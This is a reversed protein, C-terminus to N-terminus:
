NSGIRLTLKPNGETFIIFFLGCIMEFLISFLYYNIGVDTRTIAFFTRLAMSMIYSLLVVTFLNFYQNSVTEIILRRLFLGVIVISFALMNMGEFKHSHIALIIGIWIVPLLIFGLSFQKQQEQAILFIIILILVFVNTLNSFNQLHIFVLTTEIAGAVSLTAFFFSYRGKRQRIIPFLWLINSVKILAILLKLM